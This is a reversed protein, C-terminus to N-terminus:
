FTQSLIALLKKGNETKELTELQEATRHLKEALEAKKIVSM